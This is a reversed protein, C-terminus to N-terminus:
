PSYLRSSQFEMYCLVISVVKYFLFHNMAVFDRVIDCIVYGLLWECLLANSTNMSDSVPFSREAFVPVSGRLIFYILQVFSRYLM